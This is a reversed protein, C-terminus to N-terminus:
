NAHTDVKLEEPTFPIIKRIYHKNKQKIDVRGSCEHKLYTKNYTFLHVM